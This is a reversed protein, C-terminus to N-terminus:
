QHFHITSTVTGWLIFDQERGIEITPFDPGKESRLFFCGNRHVFRKICFQGDLVAVVVSQDCARVSRDVLALDGDYIGADCMSHGQIRVLFTSAPRTILIRNLDMAHDPKYDPHSLATPLPFGAYVPIDVFRAYTNQSDIM